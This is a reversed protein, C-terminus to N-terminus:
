GTDIAEMARALPKLEHERLLGRGSETLGMRDAGEQEGGGGRNPEVRSARAVGTDM